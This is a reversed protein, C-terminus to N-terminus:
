KLTAIYAAIDSAEDRSLQMNPLPNAFSPSVLNQLPGTAPAAIALAPLVGCACRLRLRQGTGRVASRDLRRHGPLVRHRRRRDSVLGSGFWTGPRQRHDVSRGM